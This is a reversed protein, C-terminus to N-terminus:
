DAVDGDGFQLSAVIAYAEELERRTQSGDRNLEIALLVGDVDIVYVSGTEGAGIATGHWLGFGGPCTSLDTIDYRAAAHGDITLDIRDSIDDGNPTDLRVIAEAFSTFDEGDPMCSTEYVDTAASAHFGMLAGEGCLGSLHFSATSGQWPISPRRPATATVSISSSAALATYTGSEALDVCGPSPAPRLTPLPDGGAPVRTWTVGDPDLLTDTDADYDYLGAIPVLQLGCGGGDPYSVVLRTGNIEGVGDARFIKVEDAACGSGSAHDDQFQVVPAVGEGVILTLTSDDSLDTATWRGEFVLGPSASPSSSPSPSPGAPLTPIPGDGGPIRTWIVGDQDLLTDADPDYVYTGAISITEVGCGGGNPFTAELREGVIEGVGDATFVKIEDGLCVEGTAHLDEFRVTPTIGAGVYLNLTSGDPVDIATWRGEFPTSPPKPSGGALIAGAVAALVLAVAILGFRVVAPFQGIRIPFEPLWGSLRRRQPTSSVHAVIADIQGEAPREDATGLLHQRLQADFRDTM